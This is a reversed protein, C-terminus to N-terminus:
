GGGTVWAATRRDVRRVELHGWDSPDYGMDAIVMARAEQEDKAIAIALGGTYDPAFEHWIFLKLKQM